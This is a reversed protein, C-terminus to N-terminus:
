AAQSKRRRTLSRVAALGALLMAYSEPEPVPTVSLSFNDIALGHDNGADNVESWRIWLTNGAGWTSEIRGGLGSVRGSTNGNIIASTSGYIPSTWDFSDGPSTWTSVGAFTDGFGYELKMSQSNANGGNRWQEGAFEITFSSLASGSNNEFAVAIWGAVAGSAPSGFYASGSGLGGLAREPNNVSGYSYFTGTTGGGDNAFINSIAVSNKNFLSWGALTSDNLWDRPGSSVLTDFNQTYSYPGTNVSLAASASTTGLALIIAIPLAKFIVM